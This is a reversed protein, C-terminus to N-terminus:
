CSKLKRILEEMELQKEKIKLIEEEIKSCEKTINLSEEEMSKLNSIIESRQKAIKSFGNLSALLEFLKM